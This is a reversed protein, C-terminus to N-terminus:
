VSRAQADWLALAFDGILRFAFAEGWKLYAAMVLEVDTITRGLVDDALLSILEDRNDLRGDWTLVHREPSVFPQEELRSERNTHLARYSFGVHTSCVDRGGDTGRISLSEGLSALLHEEVRGSYSFIGGLASM